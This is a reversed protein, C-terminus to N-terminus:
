CGLMTTWQDFPLNSTAILSQYECAHSVVEFLLEARAKSFQIYGLEGLVIL